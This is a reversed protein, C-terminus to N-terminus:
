PTYTGFTPHAAIINSADSNFQPSGVTHWDWIIIDLKLPSGSTWNLAGGTTYTFTSTAFNYLNPMNPPADAAGANKGTWEGNQVSCGTAGNGLMPTSGQTNTGNHYDQYIPYCQTNISSNKITLDPGVLLAGNPQITAAVQELLAREAAGGVQALFNMFYMQRSTPCADSIYQNELILANIFITPTYGSNPSPDGTATEQTAIGGFNPHSDFATGLANCLSQWRSLVHSDWRWVQWGGSLAGVYVEAYTELGPPAPSSAMSLVQIGTVSGASLAGSWSVHTTGSIVVNTRTEQNSFIAGYTGDPLATAGTLTGSTAGGVSGTFTGSAPTAYTRTTIFPFLLVPPGTFTALQDLHRQIKTFDYSGGGLDISNWNYRVTAGATNGCIPGVATRAGSNPVGITGCNPINGGAANIAASVIATYHGPAYKRTATSLGTVPLIDSWDSQRGDMVIVAIRYYFYVGSAPAATAYVNSATQQAVTYPGGLATASQFVYATAVLIPDSFTATVTVSSVSQATVALTPRSISPLPTPGGPRFGFPIVRRVTSCGELAVFWGLFTRRDLSTV